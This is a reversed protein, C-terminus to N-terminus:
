PISSSSSPQSRPPEVARARAERARELLAELPQRRGATARLEELLEILRGIAADTHPDDALLARALAAPTAALRTADTLGPGIFPALADAGSEEALLALGIAAALPGASTAAILRDHTDASCVTPVAGVGRAVEGAREMALADSRATPVLLFSRGRFLEADAAAFGSATSGAMPHGGVIRAEAPAERSFAALPAKLSGTDMLVAGRAVPAVAAITPVVADLPTAVIVVDAPLLAALRDAVRLGARAALARAQPDEDFAVVDHGHHLALALSGGILGTGAIGIHM